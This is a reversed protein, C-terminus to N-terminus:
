AIMFDYFTLRQRIIFHTQYSHCWVVATYLIGDDVNYATEISHRTVITLQIEDRSHHTTTHTIWSELRTELIVWVVLRSGCVRGQNRSWSRTSGCSQEKTLDGAAPPSVDSVVKLISLSTGSIIGVCTVIQWVPFINKNAVCIETCLITIIGDYVM